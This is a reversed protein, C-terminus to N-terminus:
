IEVNITLNYTKLDNILKHMETQVLSPSAAVYEINGDESAVYINQTRYKGQWASDLIHKTLLKHIEKINKENLQNQQAFIYASYLDDIKKTYDPKFSINDRKHKIYSDLEINEGEIKSSFVSAVSTYFSFNFTSLKADKLINFKQQLGKPIVKLYETLLDTKIIQFKM